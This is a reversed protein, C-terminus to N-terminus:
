IGAAQGAGIREVAKEINEENLLVVRDDTVVFHEPKIERREPARSKLDTFEIKYIAGLANLSM